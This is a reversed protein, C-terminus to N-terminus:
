SIANTLLHTRVEAHQMVSRSNKQFHIQKRSSFQVSSVCLHPYRLLIEINLPQTHECQQPWAEWMSASPVCSEM